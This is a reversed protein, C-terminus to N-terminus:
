ASPLSPVGMNWLDDLDLRHLEYVDDARAKPSRVEPDTVSQGFRVEFWGLEAANL